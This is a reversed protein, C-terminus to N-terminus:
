LRKIVQQTLAGDAQQLPERVHERLDRARNMARTHDVADHHVTWTHHTKTESALLIMPVGRNQVRRDGFNLSRCEGGGRVGNKTTKKKVCYPDGVFSGRKTDIFRGDPGRQRLTLSYQGRKEELGQMRKDLAPTRKPRAIFGHPLHETKGTANSFFM